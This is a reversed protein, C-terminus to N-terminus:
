TKDRWHFTIKGWCKTVKLIILYLVVCGILGYIAIEMRITGSALALVLLYVPTSAMMVLNSAGLEIGTTTHFNPDVIRVIAVGSPVTGTCTGYLGLTREFDNEGGIRQGFYFCVFFTVLTIFVSIILIMPLWEKIISVSIAMFSCVVLYDATWGTIKNQLVNEQLFDLHLKKMVFKVIYAAYMGNMFMMASMSTGLFGPLYSFAKGILAALLYCVGIIAFHFSLTEINSNCTTDKVMYETQEEKRFYGKLIQEGLKGCHKALGRKMGLKAAPVGILFAAIFGISAFTVAVMSANEWGYQEFIAGYAVSQGPGQCFAFQVLMGYILDMGSKSGLVAITGVGILPTLAYLLCWIIGLAVAGKMVNKIGDEKKQYSNTLGISIFSVIFLQNVITTYIGTDISARLGEGIPMNMFVFGLIGAIVSAPMLMNRFISIKARLFMGFCLMTSAFGFALMMEM